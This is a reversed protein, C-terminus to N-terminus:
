WESEKNTIKYVKKWKEKGTERRSRRDEIEVIDENTFRKRNLFYKKRDNLFFTQELLHKL